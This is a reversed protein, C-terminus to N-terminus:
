DDDDGGGLWWESGLSPLTMGGGGNRRSTGSSRAGSPSVDRKKAPEWKDTYHCNGCRKSANRHREDNPAKNAHCTICQRLEARPLIEHKFGAPKWKDTKHCIGCKILMEPTLRNHTKDKPTVAKHCSACNELEAKPLATHKFTAPKWKETTHCAGCKALMEPALSQHTKDKPTAARHCDDCRDLEPKPLATHKFTAPKWKDTVHCLGCKALTRPSLSDHTKDKPTASKHCSMCNDLEAKALADHKFTAPKWKDTKHCAGCKERMERPLADHTKDRPTHATHCQACNNLERKALIDHKFDLPKWKDTVHCLVCRKTSADHLKDKPTAAKHCSVCNELDAKPLLDHKFSAPKWKETTHCSGCDALMEPSLKQHTQDKPTTPAHCSVCEKLTKKDLLDHSFKFAKRYIAIGEHDSHCAVCETGTLRQHFAVPKKGEKKVVPKGKSTLIGIDKVKHCEVCKHDAAGTFLTHCAFCDTEIDKHGEIVAGPSIMLNAYIVALVTVAAMNLWLVTKVFKSM